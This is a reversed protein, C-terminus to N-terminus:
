SLSKSHAACTFQTDIGATTADDAYLYCGSAAACLWPMYITCVAPLIRKHQNVQPPGHCQGTIDLFASYDDLLVTLTSSILM